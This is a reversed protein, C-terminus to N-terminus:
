KGKKEEVFVFKAGKRAILSNMWNRQFGTWGKQAFIMDVATQDSPNEFTLKGISERLKTDSRLVTFDESTPPTKDSM